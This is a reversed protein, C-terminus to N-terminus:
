DPCSCSGNSASTGTSTSSAESQQALRIATPFLINNELHVHRFLDAEFKELETFTFRATNCPAVTTDFGNTLARIAKMLDGARDHEHELVRVADAESEPARGKKRVAACLRAVYPFYEEEEKQMHEALEELLESTIRAVRVFEPHTSGHVNACTQTLDRLTPTRERVYRHHINVIYSALFDPEWNRMDLHSEITDDAQKEAAALAASIEECSIEQEDCADRLSKDGGCCFDIGYKRFVEARRYDEAALEGVTRHCLETNMTAIEMYTQHTQTVGRRGDESPDYRPRPPINLNYSDKIKNLSLSRGKRTDLPHARTWVADIRFIKWRTFSSVTTRRAM